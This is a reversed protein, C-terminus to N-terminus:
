KSDNMVGEQKKVKVARVKKNKPKKEILKSKETKSANFLNKDKALIEQIENRLANIRDSYFAVTKLYDEETIEHAKLQRELTRIIKYSSHLEEKLKDLNILLRSHKRQLEKAKELENHCEKMAADYEEKSIKEEALLKDLENIKQQIRKINITKEQITFSEHGKHSFLLFLAVVILIISIALLLFVLVNAELSSGQTKIEEIESLPLGKFENYAKDLVTFVADSLYLLVLGSKLENAAKSPFGKESYYNASELFFKAHDFYLSAWIFTNNSKDFKEQMEAFKKDFIEKLSVLDKDKSDLEAQILAKASLADIAAAIYWKNEKELKAANLRRIADKFEDKSITSAINEAQIIAQLAENKLFENNKAKHKATKTLLHFDKAANFWAVAFEFDLLKGLAISKVTIEPSDVVIITQRLNEIKEKAWSLREQASVQWEIRDVLVFSNIESEFSQIDTELQMIKQNLAESNLSLLSPNESLDVIFYNNVISVFALNASSYLYNQEFLIEAKHINQESSTIISLLESTIDLDDISTSSLADKAKKLSNKAEDLYKRTLAQMELLNDPLALQRPVFEPLQLSQKNIDINEPNLFAYKLVDDIDEVEIIKLQWNELAYSVLDISRVENNFKRTQLAEGKPIMFLKIGAKSAFEAKEFVGGVAGVSGDLNITGTISVDNRLPKDTLMSIILLAMAAGASPGDVVAASSNIDFFYDYNDVDSFYTKAVQKAIRETNQTTTGVLPGIKSWVNGAGPKIELVLDAKLGAGTETVAFVPMSAKEIVAQANLSLLLILSILIFYFAKKM